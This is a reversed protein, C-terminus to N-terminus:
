KEPKSLLVEDGAKLGSMVEVKGGARKGVTVPRKEHGDATARYVYHKDEDLTEEFVASSPITLAEERAYPVLKVSCAMGPMVGSAEDTLAIRIEFQGPAIPAATLKEIRAPFRADPMATPIVKCSLGASLQGFDKEDATARVFLGKPQVITFLADEGVIGGGAHLRTLMAGATAFNGRACRGLYVVGDAPSKVVFKDRDNRLKTLRETARSREYKAKDLALSKQQISMPVTAKARELAIGTKVLDDKMREERRPVEFKLMQDRRKEDGKLEFEYMAVMFRQRKLIIEETEETLEKAKYMKELQKLEERMYDLYEKTSRVSWDISELLFKKDEKQYREADEKAQKDAREAAALDLPALKKAVPLEIELATIALDALKQEAELDHLARDIKEPDLKLLVDGKKVTAGPEVAWLVPVPGPQMWSDFQLTVETMAATEFVGKLTVETKFPEKEVKATTPKAKEDKKPKEFIKVLKEDKKPKPNDDDRAIAFGAAVAAMLALASFRRNWPSM